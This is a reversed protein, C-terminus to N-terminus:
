LNNVHERVEKILGSLVSKATVAVVQHDPVATGAFRGRFRGQFINESFHEQFTGLIAAVTPRNGL